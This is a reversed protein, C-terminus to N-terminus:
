AKRAAILRAYLTEYDTVLRDVTFREKVASRCTAGEIQHVRGVAEVMQDVDEVIFGTVGDDIVEPVSGNRFAIVPTGTAMAEIMVLGFPEPWLIPFLFAAANAFLERRQPDGVEGLFVIQDDLEPEIVDHFYDAYQPQLAGAMFLRRGTRRAVEISLHFGKAECVRGFALLYDDKEEQLPWVGLDIANPVVGAWNMDAPGMSRQYESIANYAVAQQYQEYFGNTVEDFASHITHLVPPLPLLGAAAVVMFGSHDHVMDFAREGSRSLIDALAFGSHRAEFAPNGMFEPIQAPFVSRLEAGTHSDGSAYLTVQHGRTTLGDCLQQVVWETGGYGRPPVSIWPPAIQAIRM